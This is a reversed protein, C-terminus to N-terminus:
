RSGQMSYLNKAWELRYRHTKHSLYIYRHGTIHLEYAPDTQMLELIKATIVSYPSGKMTEPPWATSTSNPMRSAEYAGSRTKEFLLYRCMYSHDGSASGCVHLMGFVTRSLSTGKDATHLGSSWERFPWTASKANALAQLMGIADDWDPLAQVDSEPNLLSDCVLCM